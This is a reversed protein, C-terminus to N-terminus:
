ASRSPPEIRKWGFLRADVSWFGPGVMALVTGMTALFLYNWPDGVKSLLEYAQMGAVLMGAVPTWLGVLLLLGVGIAFVFLATLQFSGDSNLKDVARWILTIGVVLRLLLLGVGPWGRAFTSFLRRL